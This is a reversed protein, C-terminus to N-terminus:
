GVSWTGRSPPGGKSRREPTAYNDAIQQATLEAGSSDRVMQAIDEDSKGNKRLAEIEDSIMGVFAQVPFSEEPLGSAKRLAAQAKMAQDLTFMM